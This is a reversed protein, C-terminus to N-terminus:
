LIVVEDYDLIPAFGLAEYIARAPANDASVNLAIVDCRDGVRDVVGATVLRGLGRGRADRRVFVSGLAALRQTASLLHTGAAALLQGDGGAVGVFSHDALMSPLFFAAGPDTAYLEVLRAVDGPGLPEVSADNAPLAGRDVLEYKTHPGGEGLARVPRLADALGTPGTLMLGGPLSPVIEALLELCAGPAKTSVATATIIGDTPNAVVGVVAEGRRFWRSASWYPDELDILSYLHVARDDAFFQILEDPSEVIRAGPPPPPLPRTM